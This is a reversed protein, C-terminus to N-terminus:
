TSHSRGYRRSAGLKWAVGVFVDTLEGYVGVMRRAPSVVLEHLFAPNDINKLLEGEGPM